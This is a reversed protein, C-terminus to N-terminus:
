QPLYRSSHASLANAQQFEGNHGVSDAPRQVVLGTSTPVQRSTLAFLPATYPLDVQRTQSTITHLVQNAKAWMGAHTGGEEGENGLSVDERNLCIEKM